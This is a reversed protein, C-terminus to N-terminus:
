SFLIVRSSGSFTTVLRASLEGPIIHSAYKMLLQVAEHPGLAKVMLPGISSWVIGGLQDKSTTFVSGCNLCTGSRFTTLLDLTQSWAAHDMCPLWKALESTDGLHIVLPLVSSFGESQRRPLILYWLSPVKKCVEILRGRSNEWYYSVLVEALDSYLMTRSSVVPFGCVCSGSEVSNLEEFAVTVYLRLQDDSFVESLCDSSAPMKELYSLFLSYCHSSAAEKSNGNGEVHQQLRMVLYWVDKVSIHKGLKCCTEIREMSFMFFTTSLLLPPPMEEYTAQALTSDGVYYLNGEEYRDLIVCLSFYYCSLESTQIYQLALTPDFLESFIVLINSLFIDIIVADESYLDKFHEPFQHTHQLSTDQIKHQLWTILYKTKLAHHFEDRIVKVIDDTFYHAFPFTGSINFESRLNSLQCLKLRKVTSDDVVGFDTKPLVTVFLEYIAYIANLLECVPESKDAGNQEYTVLLNCLDTINSVDLIPFHPQGPRLKDSCSHVLEVLESSHKEELVAEQYDSSRIDLPELVTDQNLLKMKGELMKWKEKLSKWSMSNKLEKLVQVGEPSFASDSSFLLDSSKSVLVEGSSNHKVHLRHHLQTSDETSATNSHFALEPLSTTSVSKREQQSAGNTKKRNNEPSANLSRSKQKLSQVCLHSKLLEGKGEENPCFFQMNEVLFIGSKLRQANQKERAYKGIEHLLPSITRAVECDELKTGLDALIQLKSSAAALEMLYNYYLGCLQACLAYQKRLYLRVLVMDVPLMLLAHMQGSSMWIYIEDDLTKADVIDKFSNNWLVVNGKDPDLVYIGNRRFTFIFKKAIIYLKTFNFSQQGWAEHHTTEVVSDGLEMEHLRIIGTPPVAFAQKFHHTSLVTGDVHAEWLRSGPRACFMKLNQVGECGVFKEGESLSSFAGGVASGWYEYRSPLDHYDGTVYFCAGYEGERLRQGIQRYQEKATDCIYCRSLTSILLMESCWDLQVIRSDLQMLIFSPTQFMNKAQFGYLQEILDGWFYLIYLFVIHTYLHINLGFVLM